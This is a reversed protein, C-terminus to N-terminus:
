EWAGMSIFSGDESNFRFLTYFGVYGKIKEEGESCILETTTNTCHEKTFGVGFETLLNELKELDTM